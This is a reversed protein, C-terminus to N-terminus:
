VAIPNSPEFDNCCNNALRAPDVPHSTKNSHAKQGKYGCRGHHKKHPSVVTNNSRRSTM